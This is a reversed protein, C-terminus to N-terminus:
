KKKAPAKAPPKAAPPPPPPPKPDSNRLMLRFGIAQHNTSPYAESRASARCQRAHSLWSGGRLSKKWGSPPGAPDQAPQKSLNPEFWDRCWEAINGHMDRFGWPNAQKLGVAQLQGGSNGVHWAVDDASAATSDAASFPFRTGARCAYEWQAETPLDPVWAPVQNARFFGNIKGLLGGNREKNGCIRDWSALRMPHDLQTKVSGGDTTLLVELLSQRGEIAEWQAQTFETEALWYGATLKVPRGASGSAAGMRFTGPPCWRFAVRLDPALNFERREGALNGPEPLRPKEPLTASLELTELNVVEGSLPTDVHSQLKLLYDVKGVEVEEFTCPTLKGTDKGASWVAAGPPTSAIVVRGGIMQWGITPLRVPNRGLFELKVQAPPRFGPRSLTFRHTGLPIGTITKAGPVLPKRSMELVADPPWDDPLLLTGTITQLEAIRKEAQGVAAPGYVATRARIAGFATIAARIEDQTVWQEAAALATTGAAQQQRSHDQLAKAATIVQEAPVFGPVLTLAEDAHAAAEDAQGAALEEQATIVLATAQLRLERQRLEARVYPFLAVGLGLLLLVLIVIGLWCGWRTGRPPLM